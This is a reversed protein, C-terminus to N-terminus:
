TDSRDGRRPAARRPGCKRQLRCLGHTPNLCHASLIEGASGYKIQGVVEGTSDQVDFTPWAPGINKGAGKGKPVASREVSVGAAPEAPAAPVAMPQAVAVAAQPAPAALAAVAAEAPGDAGVGVADLQPLGPPSTGAHEAAPPHDANQEDGRTKM